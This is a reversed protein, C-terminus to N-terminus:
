SFGDSSWSVVPEYSRHIVVHANNTSAGSLDHSDPNSEKRVEHTAAARQAYIKSGCHFLMRKLTKKARPNRWVLRGMNDKSHVLARRRRRTIEEATLAENDDRQAFGVEHCRTRGGEHCSPRYTHRRHRHPNVHSTVYSV